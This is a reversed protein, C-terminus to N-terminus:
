TVQHQDMLYVVAVVSENTAFNTEIIGQWICKITFRTVQHQDMLYVIAVLWLATHSQNTAFGTEPYSLYFMLLM